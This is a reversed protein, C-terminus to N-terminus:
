GMAVMAVGQQGLEGDTGMVVQINRDMAVFFPAQQMALQFHRAMFLHVGDAYVQAQTLLMTLTLDAAAPM